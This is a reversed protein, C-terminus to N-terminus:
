ARDPRPLRPQRGAAPALSELRACNTLCRWNPTAASSLWHGYIAASGARCNTTGPPGIYTYNSANEPAVLMQASRIVGASGETAGNSLGADDVCWRESLTHIQRTSTTLQQRGRRYHECIASYQYSGPQGSQYELWLWQLTVSKRRVENCPQGAQRRGSCRRSSAPRCDCDNGPRTAAIPQCRRPYATWSPAPWTTPSLLSFVNTVRNIERRSRRHEVNPQLVDAIRRM